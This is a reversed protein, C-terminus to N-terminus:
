FKNVMHHICHTCQVRMDHSVNHAAQVGVSQFITGYQSDFGGSINIINMHVKLKFIAGEVKTTVRPDPNERLMPM